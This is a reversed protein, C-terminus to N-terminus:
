VNNEFIKYIFNTQCIITATVKLNIKVLNNSVNEKKKRELVIILINYYDKASYYIIIKNHSLNM